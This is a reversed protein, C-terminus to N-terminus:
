PLSRRAAPENPRVLSPERLLMLLGPQNLTAVYHPPLASAYGHAKRSSVEALTQGTLDWRPALLARWPEQAAGLAGVALLAMLTYRWASRGHEALPRVTALAFVTLAPISSRMVLDNGPGFHYLPLALLVLLSTALPVDFAKLRLLVLALVGFELTCFMAYREFFEGATAFYHMAWGGPIAQTDLTIFRAVLLAVGLLPLGARISFVLRIDRRWNLGAIFFPALGIAALPSWLPITAAFLPAIRALTPSRWHRLVLLIGLWAPLAHNPVWFLLTSNSSYQAFQAWWEIHEGLAPLTWHTLLYGVLDLGGFGIMVACCIWRQANTTFRTTAACLVLVFGLVTWAYLAIDAFGLGLVSGLAAAPLYYAVPARLILPLPGDSEYKPPWATETLDRLVADRTLWDSNAYFFHGVGALATWIAAVVVIALLLRPRVEVHGLRSGQLLQHLGLVTLLGFGIAFPWKFWACFLLLPLALFLCILGDLMSLGSEPRQPNMPMELSM